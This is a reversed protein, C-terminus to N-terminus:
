KTEEDPKPVVIYGEDRGDPGTTRPAPTVADPFPPNPYTGGPDFVNLTDVHLHLEDVTNLPYPYFDEPGQYFELGIEFVLRGLHQDGSADNTIRSRFFSFQQLQKMLPTYNILARKIQDRMGELQDFVFAAGQDDGVPSAQSRAEIVLTTVVNFQPANPGLSDGQEEPDSVFLVPYTNDFTPWDRPAYVMAGADTNGILAEVALAMLETSTTM